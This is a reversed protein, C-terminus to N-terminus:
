ISCQAKKTDSASGTDGYVFADATTSDSMGYFINTIPSMVKWRTTAPQGAKRSCHSSDPRAHDWSGCDVLAGNGIYPWWYPLDLVTGEAGGVTGEATYQVDALNKSPKDKNLYNCTVSEIKVVTPEKPASPPVIPVPIPQTIPTVAEPKTQSEQETKQVPRSAEEENAKQIWVGGEKRYYRVEGYGNDIMLWSWGSDDAQKSYKALLDDWNPKKTFTAAVKQSKDLKVKCAGMGSCAGSWGEFVSGEDPMADLTISTGPKFGICLGDCGTRQAKPSYTFTGDGDGLKNIDLTISKPLVKISTTTCFKKGVSDRACVQFKRLGLPTNSKPTGSIVGNLNMRLGFPLGVGATFTYPPKGGVPNKVDVDGSFVKGCFRGSTPKPECFSHEYLKGIEADAPSNNRLALKGASYATGSIGMSLFFLAGIIYFKSM